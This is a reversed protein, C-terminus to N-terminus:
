SSAGFVRNVLNRKVCRRVAQKNRKGTVLLLPLDNVESVETNRVMEHVHLHMGQVRRVANADFRRERSAASM